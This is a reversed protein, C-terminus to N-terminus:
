GSGTPPASATTATAASAASSVGAAAIEPRRHIPTPAASAVSGHSCVRKASM